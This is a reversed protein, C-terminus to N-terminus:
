AVVILNPIYTFCISNKALRSLSSLQYAHNYDVQRQDCIALYSVLMIKELVLSGVIVQIAGFHVFNVNEHQRIYEIEEVLFISLM